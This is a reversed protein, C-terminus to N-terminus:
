HDPYDNGGDDKNEVRRDFPAQAAWCDLRPDLLDKTLPSLVIRGGESM